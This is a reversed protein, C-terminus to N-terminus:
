GPRSATVYVDRIDYDLVADCGPCKAVPSSGDPLQGPYLTPRRCHPCNVALYLPEPERDATEDPMVSFGLRNVTNISEGTADAAEHDPRARTM